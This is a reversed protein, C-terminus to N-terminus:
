NTLFAGVTNMYRERQEWHPYHSADMMCVWKVKEIANFFKQQCGSTAEDYEGNILLIPVNIKHLDELISWAKIIGIM